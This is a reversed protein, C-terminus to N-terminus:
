LPLSLNTTMLLTQPTQWIRLIRRGSLFWRITESAKSMLRPWLVPFSDAMPMGDSRSRCRELISRKKKVPLGSKIMNRLPEKMDLKELLQGQVTSEGGPLIIGDIGSLDAKKRIEICPIGLKELMHEHEIFAGQVALVGITM